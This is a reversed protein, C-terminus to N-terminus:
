LMILMSMSSGAFLILENQFSDYAIMHLIALIYITNAVPAILKVIEVDITKTIFVVFRM